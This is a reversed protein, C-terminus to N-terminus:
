HIWDEERRVAMRVQLSRDNPIAASVSHFESGRCSVDVNVVYNMHNKFRM